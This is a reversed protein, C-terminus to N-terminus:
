WSRVYTACCLLAYYLMSILVGRYKALTSSVLFHNKTDVLGGKVWKPMPRKPGKIMLSRRVSSFLHPNTSVQKYELSICLSANFSIVASETILAELFKMQRLSGTFVILYSCNIVRLVLM